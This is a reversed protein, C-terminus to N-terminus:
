KFVLAIALAIVQGVNMLVMNKVSLIFTEAKVPKSRFTKINKYVPILTLLALLLTLPAIRLIVAAIIAAYGIYYLFAFLKLSNKKGIYYVLTFRQNAIDDELDCTNNALMINAIAGVTPISILFIRFIELININLSLIDYSYTLSAINKDYVHIFIALFLIIFGMFFGSFAEGLPMRSIPLPGFTYFIGVAFSLMGILLVVTSTRVTLILGLTSAVTILTFIIGLATKERIGHKVMANHHEYGFGEKKIAKKFDIYNNIATTAMDFCILSIFMIIFNSSKFSGYRYVAYLTGIAFPIVSAVKTQIEVFKLFSILTM